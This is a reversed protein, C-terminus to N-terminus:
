FGYDQVVAKNEEIKAKLTEYTELAMEHMVKSRSLLDMILAEDRYVREIFIKLGEPARPDYSIFDCWQRGTVLMTFQMQANYMGVQKGSLVNDLHNNSNPCKVEICGEDDVLGDPTCGFPQDSHSIWEQMSHVNAGTKAMYTNIAEAEFELGHQVHPINSIDARIDYEAMSAGIEKARSKFTEGYAVGGRGGTLVDKAMSASIYGSKPM